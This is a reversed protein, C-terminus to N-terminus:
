LLSISKFLHFVFFRERRVKPRPRFRSADESAVRKLARVHAGKEDNLANEEDKLEQETVRFNELHMQIAEKAELAELQTQNEKNTSGHLRQELAKRKKKLDQKHQELNKTAYGEEWSELARM